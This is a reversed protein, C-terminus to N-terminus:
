EDDENLGGRAAADIALLDRVEPMDTGRGLWSNAVRTQAAQVNTAAEAEERVIVMDAPDPDQGADVAASIRGEAAKWRPSMPLKKRAPSDPPLPPPAVAVADVIKRVAECLAEHGMDEAGVVGGNMAVLLLADRMMQFERQMRLLADAGADCLAVKRHADQEALMRQERERTAVGQVRKLHERLHGVESFTERLVRSHADGIEPRDAIRELSELDHSRPAVYPRM